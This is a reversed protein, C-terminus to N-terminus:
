TMKSGITEFVRLEANYKHTSQSRYEGTNGLPVYTLDAIVRLEVDTVTLVKSLWPETLECFFIAEDAPLVIGSGTPLFRNAFPPKERHDPDAVIARIDYNTMRLPVNGYNRTLITIRADGDAEFCEFQVQAIAFYPRHAVDFTARTVNAVAKSADASGRAARAMRYSVWVNVLTALAIVLTAVTTVNTPISFWARLLELM